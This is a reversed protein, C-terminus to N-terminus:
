FQNYVSAQWHLKVSGSNPAFQYSVILSSANGSVDFGIGSARAQKSGPTIVVMGSVTPNSFLGHTITYVTTSDNGSGLFVGNNQSGQREDIITVRGGSTTIPDNGSTPVIQGERICVVNRPGANIDNISPSTGGFAEIEVYNRNGSGEFTVTDPYKGVRANFVQNNQVTYATGGSADDFSGSADFVIAARRGSVVTNLDQARIDYIANSYATHIFAVAGKQYGAGDIEVGHFKNYKANIYIASHMTGVHTIRLGNFQNVNPFDFHHTVGIGASDFLTSFYGPEMRIDNLGSFSANQDQFMCNDFIGRNADGILHLGIHMYQMEVDRMIIMSNPAAGGDVEYRIGGAAIGSTTTLFNRNNIYLGQFEVFSRGSNIAGIASIHEFVYRGSFPFSPGITLTTTVERNGWVGKFSFKNSNTVPISIPSNVTFTQHGAFNIETGTTTKATLVANVVTSFDTGSQEIIGTRNNVARITSGSVWVFYEEITRSPLMQLGSFSIGSAGAGITIGGGSRGFEVVGSTTFRMPELVTANPVDQIQFILNPSQGSGTQRLTNIISDTATQQLFLRRDLTSNAWLSISTNAGSGAGASFYVTQNQGSAAQTVNFVVSNGSMRLNGQDLVTINDLTMIGSIQLTGGFRTPGTYTFGCIDDKAWTNTGLDTFQQSRMIGGLIITDSAGSIINASVGQTGSIGTSIDWQKCEIFQNQTGPGINKFGVYTKPGTQGKVSMLLNRNFPGPSVATVGSAVEFEMTAGANSVYVNYIEVGNIFGTGAAGTLLFHVGRGPDQIITDKITCALIGQSITALTELRIGTWLNLTTGTERIYGGEINTGFYASALASSDVMRFVFGSYGNPLILFTGKDMSINTWRPLDWGNFGSFLTHAGAEIHISGAKGDSNAGSITVLASSVVAELSGSFQVTGSKDNRAKYAGDSDLYVTYRYGQTHPTNIILTQGSIMAAIGSTQGSLDLSTFSATNDILRGWRGRIDDSRISVM